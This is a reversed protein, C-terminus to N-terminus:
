EIKSKSNSKKFYNKLLELFSSGLKGTIIGVIFAIPSGWDKWFNIVVEQLTFPKLVTVPLNAKELSYGLNFIPTDPTGSIQTVNAQLPIIYKGIGIESPIRIEMNVPEVGNRHRNLVESQIGSINNDIVTYNSVEPTFNSNAALQAGIVQKDGPRLEISSPTTNVTLDPNPITIWSTFDTMWVCNDRTKDEAYFMVQYKEPSSVAALNLDMLVYKNGIEYLEETSQNEQKIIRYPLGYLPFQYLTKNWAENNRVIEMQYDIGEWGTESNSDADILVNYSPIDQYGFSVNDITSRLWLTANFIKNDSFYDVASIDISQNWSREPECSNSFGKIKTQNILDFPQDRFEKHGFSPSVSYSTQMVTSCTIAISLVLVSLLIISLIKFDNGRFVQMKKYEISLHVLYSKMGAQM